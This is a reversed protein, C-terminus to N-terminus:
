EGGKQYMARGRKTSRRGAGDREWGFVDLPYWDAMAQFGPVNHNSHDGGTVRGRWSARQCESRGGAFDVMADFVDRQWKRDVPEGGVRKSDEAGPEFITGNDAAAAAAASGSTTSVGAEFVVLAYKVGAVQLADDRNNADDPAAAGTPSATAWSSLPAATPRRGPRSPASSIGTHKTNSGSLTATSVRNGAQMHSTTRSGPIRISASCNSFTLPKLTAADIGAAGARGGASLATSAATIPVDSGDFPNSIQIRLREAGISLHLTFPSHPMNNQEVLQPMSTWAAVWQWDEAAARHATTRPRLAAEHAIFDSDAPIAIAWQSSLLLLTAIAASPPTSLM